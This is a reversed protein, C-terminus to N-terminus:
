QITPALVEDEDSPADARAHHVARGHRSARSQGQAPRSSVVPPVPPDELGDVPLVAFIPSPLNPVLAVTKSLHGAKRFVYETPADGYPVEISLPTLGLETGDTRSVFAGDPDSNFNVRVTAPRSLVRGAAVVRAIPAKHAPSSAFAVVGGVALALLALRRGHHTRPIVDEAAEGAAGSLTSRGPGGNPSVGEGAVPAARLAMESRKMPRAARIRGSLDDYMGLSPVAGAHAQPDALAAGLEAMSQFRQAPNKALARFLISDLEPPLEPVVSRAAPAPMTMHKLMVEGFGSGGFPVKGTLMEFLLVGLAYVDARHDIDVNGECQEPAMYYPTGVVLGARTTRPSTRGEGMMKALGFDLVKVFEADSGHKVLIINDPKLDRHIVGHEHSAQLAEAVQRAIWLARAPPFPAEQQIHEALSRGELYEMIFYFDGAPTTGFDTIDVIHEHGIQNVVKAETVFRSVVEPSRAFEPHIAKLAAKRGIVPHQALYVVGMGGEGLKATVDYNGVSQGIEIM